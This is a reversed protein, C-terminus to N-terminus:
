QKSPEVVDNENGRNVSFGKEILKGPTSEEVDASGILKIFPFFLCYPVIASQMWRIVNNMWGVVVYRHGHMTAYYGVAAVRESSDYSNTKFMMTHELGAKPIAPTMTYGPCLSTVSINYKRLEDSLCLSLAHTYHKAACYSALFPTPLVGGISSVNLIRKQSTNESHSKWYNGWLHCMKLYSTSLLNSMALQRDLPIELFEGRLCLGADNVLHNIRLDKYKKNTTVEDLIEEPANENTGLDKIIYHIQIKPNLKEFDLKAAKLDDENRAVMILNFGDRVFLRALNYGIGKSAGTILCTDRQDKNPKARFSATVFHKWVVYSLTGLTLISTITFLM